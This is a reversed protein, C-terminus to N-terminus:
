QEVGDLDLKMLFADAGGFNRQNNLSKTAHGTIYIYDDTLSISSGSNIGDGGWQKEWLLERKPTYKALLIDSDNEKETLGETEGVLYINGSQDVVFSSIGDAGSTGWQRAWSSCESLKSWKGAQCINSYHGTTIDEFGCSIKQEEDNKCIDPDDYEGDKEWLGDKCIFDQTGNLNTNYQDCAEFAVDNEELCATHELHELKEPLQPTKQNEECGM